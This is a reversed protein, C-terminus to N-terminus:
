HFQIFIKLKQIKNDEDEYEVSERVGEYL